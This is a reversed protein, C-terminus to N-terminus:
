HLRGAERQRGQQRCRGTGGGGERRSGKGQRRQWGLQRKGEVREVIMLNKNNLNTNFFDVVLFM